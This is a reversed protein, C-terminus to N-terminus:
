AVCITLFPLPYPHVNGSHKKAFKQMDHNESLNEPYTVLEWYCGHSSYCHMEMVTLHTKTQNKCHSTVQPPPVLVRGTVHTVSSVPLGTVSVRHESGLGESVTSHLSCSHGHLDVPHILFFHYM